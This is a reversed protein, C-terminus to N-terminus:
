RECQNVIADQQLVISGKQGAPGVAAWIHKGGAGSLHLCEASTEVGGQPQTGTPHNLAIGDTGAGWAIGLAATEGIRDRAHDVVFTALLEHLFACV